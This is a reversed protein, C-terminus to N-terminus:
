LVLDAISVVDNVSSLSIIIDVTQAAVIFNVSLGTVIHQNATDSIVIQDAALTGVGIEKFTEPPVIRNIIGARIFDSGIRIFYQEAFPNGWSVHANLTLSIVKNETKMIARVGNLDVAIKKIGPFVLLVTVVM